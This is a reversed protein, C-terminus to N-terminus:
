HVIEKIRSLIELKREESLEEDLLPYFSEDESNSHKILMRKIELLNKKLNDDLEDDIENMLYIIEGHEKMLDFIEPIREGCDSNCLDFIAKEEVFFHKELNWKFENFLEKWNKDNGDLNKELRELLNYLRQHEILMAESIKEM